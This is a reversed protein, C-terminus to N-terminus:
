GHGIRETCHMEMRVNAENRNIVDDLYFARAVIGTGSTLDKTGVAHSVVITQDASRTVITYDGLTWSTGATIVLLMGEMYTQFGGTVSTVTKWPTGTTALDTRSLLPFLIRDDPKTAHQFRAEFVYRRTGAVVGAALREDGRIPRMSAWVTSYTTWTEVIGGQAGRATSRSQLQIRRNLKGAEIGESQAM